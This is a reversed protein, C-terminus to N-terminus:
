DGGNSSSGSRAAGPDLAIPIISGPQRGALAEYGGRHSETRPPHIPPPERRPPHRNGHHGHDGPPRHFVPPGFVAVGPAYGAYSGVVAPAYGEPRARASEETREQLQSLALAAIARELRAERARRQAEAQEERALRAQEEVVSRPLWEAGVQVYGRRAMLQPETLWEGSEPDFTYGASRLIPALGELRPDLAAARLGAERAGEALGRERAWVALELWESASAHPPLADRRELYGALASDSSEIREIWSAPLGMEGHAMRIRVTDGDRRTVVGEFVQGNTLYVDDAVASPPASAALLAALPLAAVAASLRL